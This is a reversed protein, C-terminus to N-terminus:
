RVSEAILNYTHNKDSIIFLPPFPELLPPFLPFLSVNEIFQSNALMLFENLTNRLRVDAEAVDASLGDVRNVLDRTRNALNGSFKQLFELLKVDSGLNWTGVEAKLPDIPLLPSVEAM